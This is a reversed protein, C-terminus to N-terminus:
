IRLDPNGGEGQALYVSNGHRFLDYERRRM